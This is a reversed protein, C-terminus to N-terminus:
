SNQNSIQGYRLQQGKKKLEKNKEKVSILWNLKPEMLPRFLRLVPESTTILTIVLATALATFILAIPHHTLTDPVVQRFVRVINVHLLYIYLSYTGLKSFVFLKREKPILTLIALCLMTVAGYFLLSFLMGKFLSLGFHHYSYDMFLLETNFGHQTFYVMFAMFGLIFVGAGAQILRGKTKIKELLLTLTGRQGLTYGILYFPYFNLLRRLAFAHTLDPVFSAWIAVIIAILIPYRLKLVYPTIARWFIIGILYWLTWQPDFLKYLRAGDDLSPLHGNHILPGIFGDILQWVIFVSFLELVKRLRGERFFYGSILIFLPMHFAYITNYLWLVATNEDYQRYGEILHGLVVLFILIGKSNDFWAIRKSTM